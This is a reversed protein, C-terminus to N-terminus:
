ARRVRIGRQGPRTCQGGRRLATHLPERMLSPLASWREHKSEDAADGETEHARERKPTEADGKEEKPASVAKEEKEEKSPDAAIAAPGGLALTGAPRKKERIGGAISGPLM